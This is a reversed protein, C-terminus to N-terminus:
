AGLDMEQFGMEQKKRRRTIAANKVHDDLDYLLHCRQCLHALNEDRTDMKDHKDGPTGDPHATGLHATTLIIYTLKIGDVWSAEASMGKVVRFGNPLDVRREVLTHNPVGCWECKDGSRLRIREVHAKWDKPYRSWDVPM